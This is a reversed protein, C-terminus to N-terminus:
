CMIRGRQPAHLLLAVKVAAFRVVVEGEPTGRFVGAALLSQVDGHVARVGHGVRHVAERIAM